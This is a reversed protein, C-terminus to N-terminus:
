RRSKEYPPYVGCPLGAAFAASQGFRSVRLKIRSGAAAAEVEAKASPLDAANTVTTTVFISFQVLGAGAAEEEAQASSLERDRRERANEDRKTRQRYAARTDAATLERELLGGAEDRDLVRYAITVRRPFRGPSVLRLLVSHAV